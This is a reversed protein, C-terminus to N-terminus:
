QPVDHSEIPTPIVETIANRADPDAYRRRSPRVTVPYLPLEDDIQMDAVRDIILATVDDPEDIDVIIRMYVGAVNSSPFVEFAADPYRSRVLAEIEAIAHQMPPENIGYDYHTAVM